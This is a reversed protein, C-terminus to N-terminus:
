TELRCLLYSINFLIETPNHNESNAAATKLVSRGFQNQMELDDIM